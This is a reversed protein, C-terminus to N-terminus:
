WAFTRFGFGSHTHAPVPRHAIRVRGRAALDDVFRDDHPRNAGDSRTTPHAGRVMRDQAHRGHHQRQEEATTAAADGRARGDMQVRVHVVLRLELRLGLAREEVVAGRHARRDLARDGLVLQVLVRDGPGALVGVARPGVGNRTVVLGGDERASLLAEADVAVRAVPGGGVALAHEELAGLHLGGVEHLRAETRHRGTLDEVLHGV